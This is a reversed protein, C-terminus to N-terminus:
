RTPAATAHVRELWRAAAIVRAGNLVGLEIAVDPFVDQINFVFPARRALAIGMRHARAHAAAVDRARRRRPASSVSAGALASFGGFALARRPIDRKDTPFPHVRTIKGWSMTERRVAKGRFEPEVEHHEYWPLSTIVDIHARPRRAREVIRTMVEGTPAVDPAFHPCLVVLKVLESRRPAVTPRLLAEAAREASFYTARSRGAEVLASRRERDSLIADVAAVWGDIDDPDVLMAADGVVEPLATARAAVVPCGRRMAELAPIGFGEYRSPVVTTVAEDYLGNLDVAPIRGTRRM